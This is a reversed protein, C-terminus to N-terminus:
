QGPFFWQVGIMVWSSVLFDQMYLFFLQDSTPAPEADTCSLWLAIHAYLCLLRKEPSKEYALGLFIGFRKKKPLRKFIIVINVNNQSRDNGYVKHSSHPPPTLTYLGNNM